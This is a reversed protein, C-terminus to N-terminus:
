LNPTPPNSPLTHQIAALAAGQFIDQRNDENMKKSLLALTILGVNNITNPSLRTWCGNCNEDLHRVATVVDLCAQRKKRFVPDNRDAAFATPGDFLILGSERFTPLCLAAARLTPNAV